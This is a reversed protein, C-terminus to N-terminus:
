PRGHQPEFERGADRIQKNRRVASRANEHEFRNQNYRQQPIVLNEFSARHSTKAVSM